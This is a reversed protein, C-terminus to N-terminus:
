NKNRKPVRFQDITKRLKNAETFFSQVWFTDASPMQGSSINRYIPLLDLSLNKSQYDTKIKLGVLWFRCFAMKRSMKCAMKEESQGIVHYEELQQAVKEEKAWEMLKERIKKRQIACKESYLEFRIASCLIIAFHKFHENFKLEEFVKEWKDINESLKENAIKMEGIIKKATFENVNFTVNQEPFKPTIVNMQSNAFFPPWFRVIKNMTIQNMKDLVVPSGNPWHLNSYISFFQAFLFSLPALPFLACIKTSMVTLSAGNFYGFIGSYILRNKAWIKVMRLLSTCLKQDPLLSLQFKGSLYSALSFIGSEYTIQRILQDDELQLEKEMLYEKPVPVFSLDIEIASHEIRLMKIKGSIWKIANLGSLNKKLFQSLKDDSQGHFQDVGIKNHLVCILDLDSGEMEAGFMQSGIPLLRPKITTFQKAWQEIIVAIEKQVRLIESKKEGSIEFESTFRVMEESIQKEITRNKPNTRILNYQCEYPFHRVNLSLDIERMKLVKKLQKVYEDDIEACEFCCNENTSNEEWNQCKALKVNEITEFSLIGKAMLFAFEFEELQCIAANLEEASFSGFQTVEFHREKQQNSIGNKLKVLKNEDITEAIKEWLKNKSPDFAIQDIDEHIFYLKDHVFQLEESRISASQMFSDWKEDFKDLIQENETRKEGRKIFKLKTEIARVFLIINKTIEINKRDLKKLLVNEFAEKVVLDDLLDGLKGIGIEALTKTGNEGSNQGNEILNAKKTGKKPTKGEKKDEKEEGLENSRKETMEKKGKKNNSKEKEKGNKAGKKTAKEKKKAKKNQSQRIWNKNEEYLEMLEDTESNQRYYIETIEKYIQEEEDEGKKERIKEKEKNKSNKRLIEETKNANKVMENENLQKFNDETDEFTEGESESTGGNGESVSFYKEPEEILKELNNTSRKDMLNLWLNKKQGLIKSFQDWEDVLKALKDFHMGDLIADRRRPMKLRKGMCIIMKAFIEVNLDEADKVKKQELVKKNQEMAEESCIRLAHYFSTDEPGNEWLLMVEETKKEEAPETQENTMKNIIQKMLKVKGGNSETMLNALQERIKKERYWFPEGNIKWYEELYCLFDTQRKVKSKDKENKLKKYETEFFKNKWEDYLNFELLMKSRWRGLETSNVFYERYALAFLADRPNAITKCLTALEKMQWDCIMAARVSGFLDIFNMQAEALERRNKQTSLDGFYKLLKKRQGLSHLLDSLLFEKIQESFEDVIAKARKENECEKHDFIREIKNYPLNQSNLLRLLEFKLRLLLCMAEDFFEFRAFYFQINALNAKHKRYGSLGKPMNEDLLIIKNQDLKWRLIYLHTYIEIKSKFKQRIGENKAAFYSLYFEDLLTNRAKGYPSYLFQFECCVDIYIANVFEDKIQKATTVDIRNAVNKEPFIPSIIPMELWIQHGDRDVNQQMKDFWERGLSWSLFEGKKTYNIKALQLPMPWDWISYILYFKEVLFPVSVDGPFLLFVKTLMVFLVQSNFHGFHADFFNRRKAWLELYTYATRFNRLKSGNMVERDSHHYIRNFENKTLLLQLIKLHIAHNWLVTMAKKVEEMKHRRKEAEKKGNEENEKRDTEGKKTNEESKNLSEIKDLIRMIAEDDYNGDNETMFLEETLKKGLEKRKEAEFEFTGYDSYNEAVMKQLHEGLTRMVWQIQEANFNGRPVFPFNHLVAFYVVFNTAMFHFTMKPVTGDSEFQLFQVRQDRCLICFLSFDRCMERGEFNCQYFGRIKTSLDFGDPVMCIPKLSENIAKLFHSIPMQFRVEHSWHAFIERLERIKDFIKEELRGNTRSVNQIEKSCRTNREIIEGFEIEKWGDSILYLDGIKACNKPTEDFTKVLFKDSQYLECMEKDLKRQADLKQYKELFIELTELSQEAMKANETANNPWFLANVIAIKRRKGLEDWKRRDFIDVIFKAFKHFLLQNTVIQLEDEEVRRSISEFKDMKAVIRKLLSFLYNALKHENTIKSLEMIKIQEWEGIEEGIGIEPLKEGLHKIMKVRSIIEDACIGFHLLQRASTAHDNGPENLLVLEILREFHTGLTQKEEFSSLKLGSYDARCNKHGGFIEGFILNSQETKTTIDACKQDGNKIIEENEEDNQQENTQGIENGETKSSNVEVLREDNEGDMELKESKEVLNEGKEDSKESKQSKKKAKQKKKTKKAKKEAELNNKPSNSDFMKLNDFLNESLFEMGEDMQFMRQIEEWNVQEYVLEMMAKKFASNSKAREKKIANKIRDGFATETRILKAMANKHLHGTWKRLKNREEAWKLGPSKPPETESGFNNLLMEEWENKSPLNNQHKELYQKLEHALHWVIERIEMLREQESDFINDYINDFTIKKQAWDNAMRKGVIKHRATGIREEVWQVFVFLDAKVWEGMKDVKSEAGNANDADCFLFTEYISALFKQNGFASHEMGSLNWLTGFDVFSAKEKEAMKEVSSMMRWLKTKAGPSSMIKRRFSENEPLICLNKRWIPSMQDKLQGYFQTKAEVIKRKLENRMKAPGIRDLSGEKKNIQELLFASAIRAEFYEAWFTGSKHALKAWIFAVYQSPLLFGYNVIEPFTTQLADFANPSILWSLRQQTENRSIRTNGYCFISQFEVFKRILNSIAYYHIQDVWIQMGKAIQVYNSASKDETCDTNTNNVWNAFLIFKPLSTPEDDEKLKNVYTKWEDNKRLTEDWVIALALKHLACLKKDDDSQRNKAKKDDDSQGNKANKDDDSQGNKANKDDDSQGNKTGKVKDLESKYKGIRGKFREGSKEGIMEGMEILENEILESYVWIAAESELTEMQEKIVESNKMTQENEVQLLLEYYSNMIPCIEKMKKGIEAQAMGHGNPCEMYLKPLYAKAEDEGDASQRSGNAQENVCEFTDWFYPSFSKRNADILEFIERLRERMLFKEYFMKGFQKNDVILRSFYNEYSKILNTYPVTEDFTGFTRVLETLILNFEKILILNMEGYSEDIMANERGFIGATKRWFKNLEARKAEDNKFHRFFALIRGLFSFYELWIANNPEDGFMGTVLFAFSSETFVDAALTIPHAIQLLKDLDAVNLLHKQLMTKTFQIQEFDGQASSTRFRHSLESEGAIKADGFWASFDCKIHHDFALKSGIYAFHNLAIEKKFDSIWNPENGKGIQRLEACDYNREVTVSKLVKVNGQATRQGEFQCKVTQVIQAFDWLECLEVMGLNDMKQEIKTRLEEYHKSMELNGLNTKKKRELNAVKKSEFDFEKLNREIEMCIQVATLQASLKQRANDDLQHDFLLRVYGDELSKLKICETKEPQQQKRTYALEQGTIAM